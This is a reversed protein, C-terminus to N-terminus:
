TAEEIDVGLSGACNRLTKRTLAKVMESRYSASARMDTIPKAALAAREGAEAVTRRTLQKGLLGTAARRALIPTPAVAALAVRAEVIVGRGGPAVTIVSAVGTIAIDMENRPILRQYNGASNAKPPPVQIEVLIENKAMATKGPAKFFRDAPIVRTGRPGAVVLNAGLALMAPATDASPAANCLNGGLAARNQIKVDGILSTADVIIPYLERVIPEQYISACAVAAGIRLGGRKSFSRRNLEAIGKVDVVVTPVRREFRMQDILDTGGALCCAKGRERELVSLAEALTKPALYDFDRM